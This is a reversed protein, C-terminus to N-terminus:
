ARQRASPADFWALKEATRGDPLSGFWDLMEDWLPEAGQRFYGMHGIAQGLSRPDIDRKTLPANSYAERVCRTIGASGM